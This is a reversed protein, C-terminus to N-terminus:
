QSLQWTLERNKDELWGWRNVLSRPYKYYSQKKFVDIRNGSSARKVQNGSFHATARKSPARTPWSSRKRRSDRSWRKLWQLWRHWTQRQIWSARPAGVSFLTIPSYKQLFIFISPLLLLPRCLILHNSPMVSEISMLKLLSRSNTISLSAQRAATWPTVFLRVHSLLQVSSIMVFRNHLISVWIIAKIVWMNNLKTFRGKGGVFVIYYLAYTCASDCWDHGVRPVGQSRMSQVRGPEETWQIRWALVSSHTAM